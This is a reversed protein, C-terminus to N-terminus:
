NPFVFPISSSSVATRATEPSTENMLHYTGTNVDVAAVVTKRKLGGFEVLVNKMYDLMPTDNYVGSQKLVGEVMGGPWNIYVEPTTINAWLDSQTQVMTGEDGIEFVGVAFTNISGASVGSVVDYEMESKDTLSHYLGFLVGAEYAGYSGGGSMALATCKGEKASVVTSLAIISLKM